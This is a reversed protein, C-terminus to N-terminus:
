EWKAMTIVSAGIKVHYCGNYIKDSKLVYKAEVVDTQNIMISEPVEALSQSKDESCM